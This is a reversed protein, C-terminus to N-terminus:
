SSCRRPTFLFQLKGGYHLGVRSLILKLQNADGTKIADILNQAYLEHRAQAVTAMLGSSEIIPRRNALNDILRDCEPCPSEPDFTPINNIIEDGCISVFYYKSYDETFLILIEFMKGKVANAVSDRWTKLHAKEPAEILWVQFITEQDVVLYLNKITEVIPQSNFVDGAPVSFTEGINYQYKQFFQFISEISCFDQKTWLKHKGNIKM